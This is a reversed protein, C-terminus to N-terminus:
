VTKAKVIEEIALTIRARTTPDSKLTNVSKEIEGGFRQILTKALSHRLSSKIDERFQDDGLCSSLGDTLLKRFEADNAQICSEVMKDLPNNYGGSLKAKVGERLGDRIANKLLEDANIEM